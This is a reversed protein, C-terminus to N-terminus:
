LGNRISEWQRRAPCEAAIWGIIMQRPWRVARGIRVPAPLKGELDLRRVTRVSIGLESALDEASLMLPPAAEPPESRAQIPTLPALRLMDPM